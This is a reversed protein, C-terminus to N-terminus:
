WDKYQEALSLKSNGFEDVKAPSPEDDPEFKFLCWGEGVKSCQQHAAQISNLGFFEVMKVKSMGSAKANAIVQHRTNHLTLRSPVDKPLHPCKKLLGQLTRQMKELREIALGHLPNMNEDVLDEFPLIISPITYIKEGVGYIRALKNAENRLEEKKEASINAYYQDFKEKVAKADASLIQDFAEKFHLIDMKESKTAGTLKLARSLSPDHQVTSSDIVLVPEQTEVATAMRMYLWEVPELGILLNATLFQQLLKVSINGQQQLIWQYVEKPFGLKNKSIAFKGDGDTISENENTTTLQNEATNESGTLNSQKNDLKIIYYNKLNKVQVYAAEYFEETDIGNVYEPYLNGNEDIVTSLGFCFVSRMKRFASLSYKGSITEFRVMGILGDVKRAFDEEPQRSLYKSWRGEYDAITKSNLFNMRTKRYNLLTDPLKNVKRSISVESFTSSQDNM